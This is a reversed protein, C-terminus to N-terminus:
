EDPNHVNHRYTESPKFKIVNLTAM